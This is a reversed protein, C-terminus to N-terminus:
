LFCRQYTITMSNSGYVAVTNGQHIDFGKWTSQTFDLKNIVSQNNFTIADKSVIVLGPESINDIKISKGTTENTIRVGTVLQKNIEIKNWSLKHHFEADIIIKKGSQSQQDLYRYPDDCHITFTGHGVFYDFPPNTVETVWGFRYGEEDEFKLKVAQKKSLHYNLQDIVTRFERSNNMKIVFHVIIDKAPIKRDTSVTGNRGAIELYNFNAGVLGRNEVNITTYGNITDDLNIDDFTLKCYKM